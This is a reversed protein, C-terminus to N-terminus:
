TLRSRFQPTSVTQLFASIDGGVLDLAGECIAVLSSFPRNRIEDQFISSNVIVSMSRVLLALGCFETALARHSMVAFQMALLELQYADSVKGLELQICNSFASDNRYWPQRPM